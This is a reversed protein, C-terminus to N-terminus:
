GQNVTNLMGPIFRQKEFSILKIFSKRAEGTPKGIALQILHQNEKGLTVFSPDANNSVKNATISENLKTDNLM